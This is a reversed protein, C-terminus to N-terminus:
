LGRTPPELGEGAVMVGCVGHRQPDEGLLTNLRGTIEIRLAGARDDDRLVTVRDILDRMAGAGTTDGSDIGAQFAESLNRLQREYHALASPHLAVVNEIPAMQRLEADV